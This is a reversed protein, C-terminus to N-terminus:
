ALLPPRREGVRTAQEFAHALQLVGLDDRLRGVLQLAVPLGGSTFGAPVSIAPCGTLTIDTCSRMWDVYTEMPTGAVERPWELEVPFPPLQVAPLALFEHEKMFRRVRERLEAHRRTADAVEGVTLRRALEVNWRITDKLDDRREDFLPGLSTEFAVARLAQFIERAGSLDPFADAVECGLDELARRAPTLAERVAPEVPLGGADESWAVRVGRLDRELPVAFAPGPDALSLPCRDDPGAMASLLLAADAVTRGMPGEVSLPSWPDLSPWTPVRGPSPRFGVVNCFSAPNRLSGGMDSGDALAVMGCALAVAAGGSSGGCTRTPDYPNRTAGFVRNFTQSGAGFEPTNTKGLTIAGAGQIREVILSSEEPVWDGFIPSGQTTRIGATLALDKHAVPLGHLPGLPEGHALARDAALARERALEPVLTVIANLQPNVRDIQALHAELLEVASLERARLRRAQEVASLFCLDVTV